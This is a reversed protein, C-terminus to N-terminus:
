ATPKCANRVDAIEAKAFDIALTILGADSAANMSALDGASLYYAYQGVGSASIALNVVHGILSSISNFVNPDLKQDKIAKDIKFELLGAIVPVNKFVDEFDDCWAPIRGVFLSGSANVALIEIDPGCGLCLWDGHSLSDQSPHNHWLRVGGGEGMAQRMVNTLPALKRGTSVDIVKSGAADLCHLLEHDANASNNAFQLITALSTKEVDTLWNPPTPLEGGSADTFWTRPM